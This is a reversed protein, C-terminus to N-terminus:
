APTLLPTWGVVLSNPYFEACLCSLFGLGCDIGLIRIKQASPFPLKKFVDIFIPRLENRTEESGHATSYHYRGFDPEGGAAKRSARGLRL